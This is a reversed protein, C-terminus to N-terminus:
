LKMVFAQNTFMSIVRCPKGFFFEDTADRAGACTYHGYDDLLIIGGQAMRPYIFELSDKVSQYIDVDIHAFAIKADKPFTEPILGQHYHVFDEHGVTKEVEELSTDAFDGEIHIPDKFPNTEPMGAFTDFLHFSKGSGAICKAIFAASGGRFIGCEYFDGEINISQKAFLYIYYYALECIPSHSPVEKYLKQFEENITHPWYFVFDPASFAGYGNMDLFRPDVIPEPSSTM